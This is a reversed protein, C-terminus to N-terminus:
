LESRKNLLNKKEAQFIIMEEALCFQCTTSYIDTAVNDSYELSNKWSIPLCKGCWVVALVFYYIAVRIFILMGLIPSKIMCLLAIRCWISLFVWVLQAIASIRAGAGKFSSAFFPQDHVVCCERQLIYQNVAPATFLFEFTSEIVALFAELKFVFFCAVSSEFVIQFTLSAPSAGNISHDM